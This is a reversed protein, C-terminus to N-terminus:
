PHLVQKESLTRIGTNVFRFQEEASLSQFYQFYEEITNFKM